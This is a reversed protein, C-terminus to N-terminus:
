ECLEDKQLTERHLMVKQVADRLDIEEQSSEEQWRREEFIAEVSTPDGEFDWSFFTCL